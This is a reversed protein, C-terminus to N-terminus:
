YDDAGVHLGAVRDQQEIREGTVFVIPLVDGYVDRLEHCVEYGTADPLHVDLLVCSPRLEHVAALAALASASERTEYGARELTAAISARYADDDDVILVPRTRPPM